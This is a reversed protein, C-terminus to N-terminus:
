RRKGIKWLYLGFGAALAGVFLWGLNLPALDVQGGSCDHWQRGDPAQIVPKEDGATNQFWLIKWGVNLAKDESDFPGGTPFRTSAAPLAAALNPCRSAYVRVAAVSQDNVTTADIVQEDVKTWGPGLSGSAGFDGFNGYSYFGAPDRSPPVLM